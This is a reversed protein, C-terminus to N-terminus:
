DQFRTKNLEKQDLQSKDWGLIDEDSPNAIVEGNLVSTPIENISYYSRRADPDIKNRTYLIDEDLGIGDNYINTIYNIWLSGKGMQGIRSHVEGDAIKSEAQLMSGFTEVLVIRKRDYISFNDFAFGELYQGNQNVKQGTMSGLAFRFRIESWNEKPIIYNGEDDRIDIKHVALKWAGETSTNWGYFGPNYATKQVEDWNGPNGPIGEFTYWNLGSSLTTYNEDQNEILFKYFGLPSWSAGDDSSYQLVVGDTVLLDSSYNFSLTPRELLSIDYAPSYVWSHEAISGETGGGAYSGSPNTIWSFGSVEVPVDSVTPDLNITAGIPTAKQWTSFRLSAETLAIKDNEIDYDIGDYFGDVSISDTHWSEPGEDFTHTKSDVVQIKDLINFERVLSDFCNATSILHLKARYIGGEDFVVQVSDLITSDIGTRVEEFFETGDEREITFNFEQLEQWAFDYLELKRERFAFLTNNGETINKWRFEPDPIIGISKSETQQWACGTINSTAKVTIQVGDSGLNYDDSAVSVSNTNQNPVIDNKITWQFTALSDVMNGLTVNVELLDSVCAKNTLVFGDSTTGFRPKPDVVIEHEAFNTCGYDDTHEFIM